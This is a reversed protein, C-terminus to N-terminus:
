GWTYRYRRYCRFHFNNKKRVTATIHKYKRVNKNNKFDLSPELSNSIINNYYIYM